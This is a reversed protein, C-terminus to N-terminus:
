AARRASSDELERVRAEAREARRKWRDRDLRPNRAYFAEDLVLLPRAAEERLFAAERLARRCDAMAAREDSV